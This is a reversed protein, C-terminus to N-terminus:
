VDDNLRFVHYHYREFLGLWGIFFVSFYMGFDGSKVEDFVRKM